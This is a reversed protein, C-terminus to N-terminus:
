VHARGIQAEEANKEDHADSSDIKKKSEDIIVGILVGIILCILFKDLIFGAVAGIMMCIPLAVNDSDDRKKDAETKNDVETENEVKNEKKEDM